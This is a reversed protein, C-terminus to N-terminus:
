LLWYIMASEATTTTTTTTCEAALLLLLCHCGAKVGLVAPFPNRHFCGCKSGGGVRVALKQQLFHLCITLLLRHYRQCRHRLCRWHSLRQRWLQRRLGPFQGGLRTSDTQGWRGRPSSATVHSAVSHPQLQQGRSQETTVSAPCEGQTLGGCEGEDSHWWPIHCLRHCYAEPQSAYNTKM